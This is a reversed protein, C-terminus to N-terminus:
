PVPNIRALQNRSFDTARVIRIGQPTIHAVEPSFQAPLKEPSRAVADAIRLQTPEMQLAMILCERNGGAGAHAIGRLRGWILIDGEAVVIGGPNVDGLLIVTGPHRIEVGSRVTMELYLADAQTTPTTQTVSSLSTQPQLQEVSYGATVAAIATQRRSTAVSKLQLQVESFSDALDQLQRGDLLRDHAILYVPTNPTRLRDGANLRVKLQQWIDSWAVESAPLQSETPLIVLLKGVENKFQVQISNKLRNDVEQVNHDWLASSLDVEPIEENTELDRTLTLELEGPLSDSKIHQDQYSSESEQPVSDTNLVLPQSNTKLYLLVSSLEADPIVPNPEADYIASNSENDINSVIPSIEVDSLHSISEADPRASNSEPRPIAFDSTM